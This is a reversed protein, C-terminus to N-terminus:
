YPFKMLQIGANPHHIIVVLQSSSDDDEEQWDPEIRDSIMAARSTVSSVILQPRGKEELLLRDLVDAGERFTFSQPDLSQQDALPRILDYAAPRNLVHLGTLVSHRFLHELANGQRILANPDLSPRYAALFLTTTSTDSLSLPYVGGQEFRLSDERVATLIDIEDTQCAGSFVVTCILWVRMWIRM